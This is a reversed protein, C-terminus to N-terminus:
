QNQLDTEFICTTLKICGDSYLGRNLLIPAKSNISALIHELILLVLSTDESQEVNEAMSSAM